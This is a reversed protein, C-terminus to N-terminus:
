RGGDQFISIVDYSQRANVSKSSIQYASALNCAWSSSCTLISVPLLIGIHHVDTKVFRFYYYSLRPNLFNPTWISKSLVLRSGYSFGFRFYTESEIAAMKFFRHSTKVENSHSWKSLIQYAVISLIVECCLSM